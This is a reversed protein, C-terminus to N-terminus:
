DMVPLFSISITNDQKKKVHISIPNERAWEPDIDAKAKWKSYHSVTGNRIMEEADKRVQVAVAFDSFTDLYCLGAVM